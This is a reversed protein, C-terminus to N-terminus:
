RRKFYQMYYEYVRLYFDIKLTYMIPFLAKISTHPDM